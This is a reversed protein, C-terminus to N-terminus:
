KEEKENILICEINEVEDYDCILHRVNDIAEQENEAEVSQEIFKHGTFTVIYNNM